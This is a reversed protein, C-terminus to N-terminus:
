SGRPDYQVLLLQVAKEGDEHFGRHVAGARDKCSRYTSNRVKEAVEEYDGVTQKCQASRKGEKFFSNLFM